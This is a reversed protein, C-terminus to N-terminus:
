VLILDVTTRVSGSAVVNRDLICCRHHAHGGGAFCLYKTFFAPGLDKIATTNKPRLLDYAARPDERSLRAAQQLLAGASEPDAAISAIRAKNHRQSDDSGWALANWLLTLAAAPDDLAPEAINFIDARTISDGLITDALEHKTLESTWWHRNVPFGHGHIWHVPDTARLQSVADAPLHTNALDTATM